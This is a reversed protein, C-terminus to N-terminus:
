LWFLKVHARYRGGALWSVKPLSKMRIRLEERNSILSIGNASLMTNIASSISMCTPTISVTVVALGWFKILVGM